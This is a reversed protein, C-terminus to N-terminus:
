FVFQKTTKPIVFYLNLQSHLFKTTERKLKLVIILIVVYCYGLFLRNYLRTLYKLEWVTVVCGWCCGTCGGSGKEFSFSSWFGKGCDHRLEWSILFGLMLKPPAGEVWVEVWARSEVRLMCFSLIAYRVRYCSEAPLLFNLLMILCM